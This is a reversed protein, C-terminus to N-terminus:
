SDNKSFNGILRFITKLFNVVGTNVLISEMSLLTV